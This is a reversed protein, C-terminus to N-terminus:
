VANKIARAADGSLDTMSSTDIVVVFGLSVTVTIRHHTDTIIYIVPLLMLVDLTDSAPLIAVRLDAPL